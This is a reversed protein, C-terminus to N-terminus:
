KEMEKILQQALNETLNKFSEETAKETNGETWGGKAEPIKLSINKQTKSNFVSVTANAYCYVQENAAKSCRSLTAKVTIAYDAEEETEAVSCNCGKEQMVAALENAVYESGSINLYISTGNELAIKATNIKQLIEASRNHITSGSGVAQLLNEWYSVKQLSDEIAKMKDLAIKKKGAEALQSALTFESESFSFLSNIRASYFDALGRKKVAAFAYVKGAKSDYHSDTFSNVFEADASIQTASMFDRSIGESSAGDKSRYSSKTEVSSRSSVDVRIREAMRGLAQRELATRADAANQGERLTEEAFAFYWESEPYTSALCAEKQWCAPEQLPPATSACGVLLAIALSFKTFELLHQFIKFFKQNKQKKPFYDEFILINLKYKSDLNIVIGLRSTM